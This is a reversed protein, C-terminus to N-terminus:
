RFAPVAKFLLVPSLQFVFDDATFHHPNWLTAKSVRPDRLIPVTIPTTQPKRNTILWFHFGPEPTARELESLTMQEMWQRHDTHICHKCKSWVLASCIADEVCEWMKWPYFCELPPTDRPCNATTCCQMKAGQPNITERYNRKQPIEFVRPSVYSCDELTGKVKDAHLISKTQYYTHYM